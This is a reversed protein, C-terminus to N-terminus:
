KSSPAKKESDFCLGDIDNDPLLYADTPSTLYSHFIRAAHAASGRTRLQEKVLRRYIAIQLPYGALVLLPNVFLVAATALTWSILAAQCYPCSRIKQLPNM